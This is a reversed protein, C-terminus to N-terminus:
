ADGAPHPHLLLSPCGIEATTVTGCLEPGDGVFLGPKPMAFTVTADAKVACGLIEGTDGHLGSPIDLAVVPRHSKNIARIADCALGEVPRSLGTGFLADVILGSHHLLADIQAPSEPLRHVVGEAKSLIECNIHAEGKLAEPNGLCYVKVPTGAALLERAVVFGDGGNNGFGALIVVPGSAASLAYLEATIAAAGVGANEMLCLGPLAYEEIAAADISRILSVPRAQDSRAPVLFPNEKSSELPWDRALSESAWWVRGSEPLKGQADLGDITYPYALDLKAAEGQAVPLNMAGIVELLVAFPGLNDISLDTLRVRVRWDHNALHRVAVLAAAGPLSTSVVALLAKPTEPDAVAERMIALALERGARECRLLDPLPLRM